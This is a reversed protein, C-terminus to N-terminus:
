KDMNSEIKFTIACQPRVSTEYFRSNQQLIKGDLEVGIVNMGYFLRNMLGGVTGHTKIHASTNHNNSCNSAGIVVITVTYELNNMKACTDCAAITYSTKRTGYRRCHLCERDSNYVYTIDNPYTNGNQLDCEYCCYSYSPSIYEHTPTDKKCVACHM